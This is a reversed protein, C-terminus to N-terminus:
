FWKGLNDIPALEAKAMQNIIFPIYDIIDSALIGVPSKENKLLDGIAGHLYVGMHSSEAPSYGQTLFGAIMGTLVDGMGGSAMLPNGTPNIFVEGNPHAIVTRSGKLVIYVKYKEALDKAKKIRNKQITEITDGTLRAMEKPHPTLIAPAKMNRLIDMNGELSNLADADIVVPIKSECLIKHIMSITQKYTGLGPGIAICNKTEMIANLLDFASKSLAGEKTEPLPITMIETNLTELIHNLSEPVGLTVLGAGSRMAAKSTLAAAGTKGRSGAIVLLHGTTGKHANSNRPKYYSSIIEPTLLHVCPLSEEAIYPPIGIDVIEISGCYDTGPYTMHGTKAFAFTATVNAKISIGLPQGTDPHLGSPIDVALVAKNLNNIFQIITKFFGTVEANLGTGFIADVWIDRNVMATKYQLFSKQNAIEIVPVNIDSLLNLNSKADGKIKSIESLLYVAVNIGKNALYRAIVFGDGGNNGCGAIIGIKKNQIEGFKSLLIRTAGRGANEMLVVGPIGFVEITKKDMQSMQWATVLYM